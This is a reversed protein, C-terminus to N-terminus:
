TLLALARLEAAPEDFSCSGYSLAFLSRAVEIQDGDLTWERWKLQHDDFAFARADNEQLIQQAVDADLGIEHVMAAAVFVNLFGHMISRPCNPEYTLPYEARIAHHLGATAKMPVEAANCAVMFEAIARTEPFADPTIGGTRIKAGADADALVALCGRIDPASAGLTPIAPLEFFPFLNAPILDIATDLFASSPVGHELPVKIEVADVVARGSSDSSHVRNFDAVGALGAELETDIVVSLPWPEGSSDRPLLSRAERSFDSLRSSSVIFRGLMWANDGALVDAYKAAADRMSLKAPPFLGAYDILGQMLAHIPSLADEQNTAM